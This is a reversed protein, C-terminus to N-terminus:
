GEVRVALQWRFQAPGHPDGAFPGTTTTLVATGPSGARCEAAIAGDASTTTSCDLVDTASSVIPQWPQYPSPGATVTLLVGVRLCVPGPADGPRIVLSLPLDGCDAPRTPSPPAGTPPASGTGASGSVVGDGATPSVSGTACAGLLLALASVAGLRLATSPKM